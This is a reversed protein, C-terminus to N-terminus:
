LQTGSQDHPGSEDVVFTAPDVEPVLQDKFFVHRQDKAYSSWITTTTNNEILRFSAPDALEIVRELYYVRHSDKSYQPSWTSLANPTAIIEFHEPDDSIFHDNYYVRYRDRAYPAELLTFSVRDAQEVLEGNKFVHQDDQFYDEKLQEFSGPEAGVVVNNDFYVRENDVYYVGSSGAGVFRLTAPDAEALTKLETATGYYVTTQDGYYSDVIHRFTTADAQSIIQDQYYVQTQDIAFQDSLYRFHVTDSSLLKGDRYVNSQDQIYLPTETPEQNVVIAFTTPDSNPIIKGRYFITHSDKGYYQDVIQFTKPDATTTMTEYHIPIPYGASYTYYVKNLKITYGQEYNGGSLFSNFAYLTLSLVIVVSITIILLALLIIKKTRVLM